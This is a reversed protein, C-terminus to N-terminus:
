ILCQSSKSDQCWGRNLGKMCIENQPVGIKQPDPWWAIPPTLMPTVCVWPPAPCKPDGSCPLLALINKSFPSNRACFLAVFVLNESFGKEFPIESGLVAWFPLLAIRGWGASGTSVVVIGAQHLYNPVSMDWKTNLMFNEYILSRRRWLCLRILRHKWRWNPGWIGQTAMTLWHASGWWGM